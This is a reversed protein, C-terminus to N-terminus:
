ESIASVKSRSRLLNGMEKVPNIQVLTGLFCSDNVVVKYIHWNSITCYSHWAEQDKGNEEEEERLNM